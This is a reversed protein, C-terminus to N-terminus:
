RKLRKPNSQAATGQCTDDIKMSGALQEIQEDTRILRIVSSAINSAIKLKSAPPL